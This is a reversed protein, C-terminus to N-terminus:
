RRRLLGELRRRRAERRLVVRGRACTGDGLPDRAGRITAALRDIDATTVTPDGFGKLVLDGDWSPGARSGIGYVETHFRYGPGLQTLAAWSVPLKENSAPAVPLSPNHAFLVTGTALDVAIASTRALSVSPGALAQGAEDRAAGATRRGRAGPRRVSGVVAAVLAARRRM